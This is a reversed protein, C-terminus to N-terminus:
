ERQLNVCHLPTKVLLYLSCFVNSTLSLSTLFSLAVVLKKLKKDKLFHFAAIFRCFKM